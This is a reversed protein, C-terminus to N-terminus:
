KQYIRTYNWYSRFVKKVYNKTEPYPIQEVFEDPLVEDFLGYMREYWPRRQIAYKMLEMKFRNINTFAVENNIYSVVFRQLLMDMAEEPVNYEVKLLSRGAEILDREDFPDLDISEMYEYLTQTYKGM